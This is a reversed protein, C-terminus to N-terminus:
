DTELPHKRSFRFKSFFGKMDIFLSPRKMIENQRSLLYSVYIYTPFTSSFFNSVRGIKM